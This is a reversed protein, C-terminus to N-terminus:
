ARKRASEEVIGFGDLALRAKVEVMLTRLSPRYARDMWGLVTTIAEDCTSCLGEEAWLCPPNCARDETCGCVRCKVFGRNDYKLEPKPAKTKM